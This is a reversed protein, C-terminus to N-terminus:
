DIMLKASPFNFSLFHGSCRANLRGHMSPTLILILKRVRHYCWAWLGAGLAPPPSRLLSKFYYVM